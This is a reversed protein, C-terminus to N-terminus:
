SPSTASTKQSGSSTADNLFAGNVAWGLISSLNVLLVSFTDSNRSRVAENLKSALTKAICSTRM